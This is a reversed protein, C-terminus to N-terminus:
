LASSVIFIPIGSFYNAPTKDVICMTLAKESLPISIGPFFKDVSSEWAVSFFM